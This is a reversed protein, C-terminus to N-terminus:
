DAKPRWLTPRRGGRRAVGIPGLAWGGGYAWKVHSGFPGLCFHTGLHSGFPGRVPGPAGKLPSLAWIDNKSFCFTLTGVLGPHIQGLFTPKPFNPTMFKCFLNGDPSFISASM